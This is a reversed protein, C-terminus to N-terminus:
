RSRIIIRSNLDRKVQELLPQLLAWDSAPCPLAAPSFRIQRRLTVTNGSRAYRARYTLGPGLRIEPPGSQVDLQGPLAVIDLGAAFIFTIDDVSDFSHCVFPQSREKELALALTRVLQTVGGGFDFSTAIDTTGPLRAFHESIGAFVMQYWDGHGGLLGADFVGYGHQGIDTLMRAVLREREPQPTDRLAQRYPEALAGSITKTVRFRSRGTHGVEVVIRNNIEEMQWAPTAALQGSAILLVPKGLLQPPLYGPATAASTPDVFLDLSPLYTIMHNLIGLTPTRPLAYADADNILAASSAIGSAALLAGLLATHDQCDGRRAALALDATHPKVAGLGVPVGVHRVHTRVWDALALAKSREDRLGSTLRRALEKIRASPATSGKAHANLALAFARYDSFTSVALRKGYDLYSVSAQEIRENQGPMYQWQYRQRGPASAIPQAAFGIADAHLNMGAPMDYRLVFHRNPEFNSSSLDDFQGAFLAVKRKLVYHLVLKDGVSVSRFTVVKIGIHQLGTSSPRQESIGSTSVDIRRGDSKQVHAAIKVIQERNRHYTITLQSLQSNQALAGPLAIRHVEDVTLTYSGDRNVVYSQLCQEIVVSRDSVDTAADSSTNSRSPASPAGYAATCLTWLIWFFARLLMRQRQSSTMKITM